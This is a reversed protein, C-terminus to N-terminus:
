SHVLRLSHQTVIAYPASDLQFMAKNSTNQDNQVKTGLIRYIRTIHMNNQSPAKSPLQLSVDGFTVKCSETVKDNRHIM